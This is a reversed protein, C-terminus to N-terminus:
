RDRSPLSRVVARALRPARRALVGVARDTRRMTAAPSPTPLASLAAEPSARTTDAPAVAVLQWLGPVGRLEHSGRDDFAIGSGVVLDRVAGSVLIEGPAALGEIRSAINVAIGGVDDGMLECEGTHIGTRLELSLSTAEDHLAQAYRIARTPGDFVVLHGDGMSKVVTGSFREALTGSTSDLVELVARWREDGMDSAMATSGVVDTFLLTRLARRTTTGRVSAGTLFEEIVSAIRDPQSFWPAHDRGDVEVMRAGPIHDALFRGFEVPIADDIAHVVLTPMSIASLAPRVDIRFVAEITARAMGPSASMRELTGLLQKSSVSPVLTSLAVGSGWQTRIAKWHAMLRALKEAPPTYEDGVVRRAREVILEPDLDLDEWTLEIGGAFTGLLLLSSVREPRTAALVIAAPGGESLGMLAAQEFGAADMVAELEEAREEITRVKPVPDSLGVGAKDFILVRAFSGLRDFWAKTEPSTWLLEVHSVFSGALVLNVQGTGFVQYALSLDRCQAYATEPV